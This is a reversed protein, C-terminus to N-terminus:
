NRDPPDFHGTPSLCRGTALEIRKLFTPSGLPRGSTTHRRFSELLEVELRLDVLRDVPGVARALPAPDVLADPTATSHAAWSSYPWASAAPALGARVPNLLIYGVAARLHLEDMPFSGFRGQWLYGRWGQRRNIRTTYGRHARALARGLGEATEPVAVLHVHNPMLCYAWIAVGHRRCAEALLERYLSYDSPELFTPQRRNGRQTVHHPSGPLVFRATRPM